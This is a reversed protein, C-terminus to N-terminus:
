RLRKSSNLRDARAAATGDAKPKGPAPAVSPKTHERHWEEAEERAAEMRKAEEAARGKGTIRYFLDTSWEHFDSSSLGKGPARLDLLAQADKIHVKSGMRKALFVMAEGPKSVSILENYKKLADAKSLAKIDEVSSNHDVVKPATRRKAAIQRALKQWEDHEARGILGTRRIKSMLAETAELEEATGYRKADLVLANLDSGALTDAHLKNYHDEPMKKIDEVSSDHTIEVEKAKEPEHALDLKDELAKRRKRLPDTLSGAIKQEMLLKQAEKVDELTGERKARLVVNHPHKNDSELKDRLKNYDEPSMNKIDEVSSEHTIKKSREAKPTAPTKEAEKSAKVRDLSDKGGGSHHELHDPHMETSYKEGAIKGSVGYKESFSTVTLEKGHHRSAPKNVLVKDGKHFSIDYEGKHRADDYDKIFERKGTKPNLRFHAKIHSKELDITFFQELPKGNGAELSKALAEDYAGM